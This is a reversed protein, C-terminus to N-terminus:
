INKVGQAKKSSKPVIKIFSRFSLSELKDVFYILILYKNNAKIKIGVTWKVTENILPIYIVSCGATKAEFHNSSFLEELTEITWSWQSSDIGSEGFISKTWSLNSNYM